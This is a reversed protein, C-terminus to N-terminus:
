TGDGHTTHGLEESRARARARASRLPEASFGALAKETIGRAPMVLTAVLPLSDGATFVPAAVSTVGPIVGGSATAVGDRLVEFRIEDVRERTSPDPM